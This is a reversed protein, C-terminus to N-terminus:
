LKKKYTFLSIVPPFTPIYILKRQHVYALGFISAAALTVIAAGGEVYSLM